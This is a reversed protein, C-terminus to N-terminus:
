RCSYGNAFDSMRTFKPSLYFLAFFQAELPKTKLGFGDGM